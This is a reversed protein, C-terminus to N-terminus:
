TNAEFQWFITVFRSLIVDAFTGTMVFVIQLSTILQLCLIHMLFSSFILFSATQIYCSLHPNDLIIQTLVNWLQLSYRNSYQEERSSTAMPELVEPVHAALVQAVALTGRSHCHLIHLGDQNM